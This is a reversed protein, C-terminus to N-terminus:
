ELAFVVSVSAEKEVKQPFLQLKFEPTPLVLNLDRTEGKDSGRKSVYTFEVLSNSIYLPAGLKGGLAEAIETGARQAKQLAAARAKAELESPDKVDWSVDEIGNAGAQVALDIIRQADGAAVRVKWSQHAKFRVVKKATSNTKTEYSDTESLGLTDSTIDDKTVGAALLAKLVKDAVRLNENYTQDHTDGYTLCGITIDAVEADVSIRQKAEVSVTRNQRSVEITQASAAPAVFPLVVIAIRWFVKM